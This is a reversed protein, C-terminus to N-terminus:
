VSSSVSGGKNMRCVWRHTEPGQAPRQPSLLSCDLSPGPKESSIPSAFRVPLPISHGLILVEAHSVAGRWGGTRIRAVVMTATSFTTNKVYTTDVQGQDPHETVMLESHVLGEGLWKM